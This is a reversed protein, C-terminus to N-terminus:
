KGCRDEGVMEYDRYIEYHHSVGGVSWSNQFLLGLGIIRSEEDNLITDTSFVYEFNEDKNKVSVTVTTM